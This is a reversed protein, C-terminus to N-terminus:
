QVFSSGDWPMYRSHSLGLKSVPFFIGLFEELLYDRKEVGGTVGFAIDWEGLAEVFM